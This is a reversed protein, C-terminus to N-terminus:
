CTLTFFKFRLWPRTNGTQIVMVEEGIRVGGAGAGLMAGVDLGPGTCSCPKITATCSEAVPQLLVSGSSSSSPETACVLKEGFFLGGSGGTWGERGGGVM